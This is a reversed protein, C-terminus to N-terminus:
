FIQESNYVKDGWALENIATTYFVNELNRVIVNPLLTWAGTKGHFFECVNAEKLLNIVRKRERASKCIILCPSHLEKTKYAISTIQESPIIVDDDLLDDVTEYWNHETSIVVNKFQKEDQDFINKKKSLGAQEALAIIRHTEDYTECVIVCCVSLKNINLKEM